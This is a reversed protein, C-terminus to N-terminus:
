SFRSILTTLRYTRRREGVANSGNYRITVVIQRLDPNGDIDCIDIQRTYGDLAIDDAPGFAGDPGPPPEAGVDDATNVLGDPGPAQM